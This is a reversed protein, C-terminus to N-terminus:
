RNVTIAIVIHEIAGATKVCVYCNPAKRAERDTQLQDQLSTFQVLYGRSLADGTSLSLVNQGTWVGPALFGREVSGECAESITNTLINIGENTQPIKPLSTLAIMINEKIKETLIDLYMIEDFSVGNAMTGQRFMNYYTAQNVYVNGNVGLLTNLDDSSLSTYAEIGVIPKYALTFSQSGPVNAGMAYGVIGAIATKGENAPLDDYMSFTRRYKGSKLAQMYAVYKTDDNISLALMSSPSASEIYSALATVETATTLAGILDETPIAVYWEANKERCATLAVLLSEGAPKTGIFVKQPTPTQSFYLSAAKYEPDSTSFGGSVMASLNAYGKVRDGASIHTSPGLILASNFVNRITAIASTNINVDVIGTLPLTGM